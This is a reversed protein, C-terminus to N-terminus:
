STWTVRLSEVNTHEDDRRAEAIRETHCDKEDPKSRLDNSLPFSIILVLVFNFSILFEFIAQALQSPFLSLPLLHSAHTESPRYMLTPSSNITSVSFPKTDPLHSAAGGGVHVDAWCTVPNSIPGVPINERTPSSWIDYENFGPFRSFSM